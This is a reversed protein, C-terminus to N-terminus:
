DKEGVMTSLLQTTGGTRAGIELVVDGKSLIGRVINSEVREPAPPLFTEQLMLLALSIRPPLSDRLARYPIAFANLAKEPLIFPTLILNGRRIVVEAKRASTIVVGRSVTTRFRHCLRKVAVLPLANLDFFLHWRFLIRM